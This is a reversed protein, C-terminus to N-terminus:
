FNLWELYRILYDTPGTVGSAQFTFALRSSPRNEEAASEILVTYYNSPTWSFNNRITQLLDPDLQDEFTLRERRWRERANLVLAAKDEDLQAYRRLVSYSATYFDINNSSIGALQVISWRGHRDLPLIDTIGPIWLLEERFQITANRPLNMMGIDEYGGREMGDESINDDEDVYDDILKVLKNIKEELTYPPNQESLFINLSNAYNNQMPLGAAGNVIRFKVISGYYEMEHDVGDPLFRDHDYESYDTETTGTNATYTARDAEVLFLIRNACGEAIYRSRILDSASYVNYTSIQAIITMSSVLIGVTVILCLVAILAVGSEQNKHKM